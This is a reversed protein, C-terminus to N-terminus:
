GPWGAARLADRIRAVAVDPRDRVMWAPFRLVREGRQWLANQRDMDAWAQLPDDHHAGDVELHLGYEPYYGDLYRVKGGADRRRQQLKPEPLGARRIAALLDLEGVSTAGGAAARATAATLRRRRARPARALADLVDDHRVLRQQYCAAVIGRAELDTRAWAAADVLSRSARTRPPRALPHIDRPLLTTTQRVTVGAPPARHDRNTPLVVWVTPAEFGRLGHAILATLGAIPAPEDPGAALSAVWLRQRETLAGNHAVLVNRHARQWRGSRVRARLASRSLFWLAQRVSLVGDQRDLLEDLGGM